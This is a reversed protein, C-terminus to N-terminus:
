KLEGLSGFRMDPKAEKLEVFGPSNMRTFISRLLLERSVVIPSNLAKLVEVPARLLSIRSKLKSRTRGPTKRTVGRTSKSAPSYQKKKAPVGDPKPKAPPLSKSKLM